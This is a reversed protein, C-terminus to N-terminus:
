KSHVNSTRESPDDKSVARKPPQPSYPVHSTSSFLWLLHSETRNVVYPQNRSSM